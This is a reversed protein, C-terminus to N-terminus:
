PRSLVNPVERLLTVSKGVIVEFSSHKRSRQACSHVYGGDLLRVTLPLVRLLLQKQHLQCGDIYCIRKEGLEDEIRQAVPHM